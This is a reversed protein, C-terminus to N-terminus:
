LQPGTARASTLSAPSTALENGMWIMAAGPEVNGEAGDPQALPPVALLVTSVIDALPM